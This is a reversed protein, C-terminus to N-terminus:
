ILPDPPGSSLGSLCPAPRGAGRPLLVTSIVRRHLSCQPTKLSVTVHASKDNQFSMGSSPWAAMPVLPPQQLQVPMSTAKILDNSRQGARTACLGLTWESATRPCSVVEGRGGACSVVSPCVKHGCLRRAM